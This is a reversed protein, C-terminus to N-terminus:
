NLMSATIKPLTGTSNSISNAAPLCARVLLQFGAAPGLAQSDASGRNAGRTRLGPPCLGALPGM